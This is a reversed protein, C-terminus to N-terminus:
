DNGARSLDDSNVDVFTCHKPIYEESIKVVAINLERVFTIVEGCIDQEQDETDPHYTVKSGNIDYGPFIHGATLFCIEGKEQLRVFPGVCGIRGLESGVYGGIRLVQKSHESILNLLLM